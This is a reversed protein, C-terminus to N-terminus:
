QGHNRALMSALEDSARRWVLLAQEDIWALFEERKMDIAALVQDMSERIHNQDAMKRIREIEEHGWDRFETLRRTAEEGFLLGASREAIELIVSASEANIRDEGSVEPIAARDIVQRALDAARDKAETIARKREAANM